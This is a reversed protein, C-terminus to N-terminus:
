EEKENVKLRLARIDAELQRIREHHLPIFAQYAVTLNGSVPNVRVANSMQAQVDRASFGVDPRGTEIWTFRRGRIAMASDLDENTIDQWDSKLNPDSNSYGYYPGFFDNAFTTSNNGLNFSVTPGIVTGSANLRTLVLDGSANPGLRWRAVGGVLFDLSTTVEITRAGKVDCGDVFSTAADNCGSMHLATRMTNPETGLGTVSYRNLYTSTATDTGDWFLAVVLQGAAAACSGTAFSASNLNRGPGIAEIVTTDTSQIYGPTGYLNVAYPAIAMLEKDTFPSGGCGKVVGQLVGESLRRVIVRITQGNLSDGTTGPALKLATALEAIEITTVGGGAAARDDIEALRDLVYRYAAESLDRMQHGAVIYRPVELTELYRPMMAQTLSISLVIAFALGLLHVM